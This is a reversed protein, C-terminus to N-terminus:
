PMSPGSAASLAKSAQPIGITSQDTSTSLTWRLGLVPISQDSRRGHFSDSSM